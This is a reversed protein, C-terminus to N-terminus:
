NFFYFVVFVWILFSILFSPVFPIGQKIYIFKLKKRILSIETKSLGEWNAKIIKKGIKLNKVLWDGETLDAVDMKKVMCVDEVAKAYILLLPSVLVLIGILFLLSFEFVFSVIFFLISFLIGIFVFSKSKKSLVFFRKKFKNFNNLFLVFSWFMGYIGGVFLFLFVFIGLIKLNFYFNLSVPLVAGLAILLKGDGGAFLHMSYFLNGLVFFIGLGILGQYFFGFGEGADLGYFLSYFFRIGLAFVILSFSIWNDIERKKLDQLSAVVLWIGALVFLLIVGIM